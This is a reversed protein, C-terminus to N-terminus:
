IFRERDGFGRQELEEQQCEPDRCYAADVGVLSKLLHSVRGEVGIEFDYANHQPKHDAFKALHHTAYEHSM